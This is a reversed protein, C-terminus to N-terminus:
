ILILKDFSVLILLEYAEHLTFGPHENVISARSSIWPKMKKPMPLPNTLYAKINSKPYAQLKM